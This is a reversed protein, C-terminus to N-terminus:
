LAPSRRSLGAPSERPREFCGTAAGPAPPGFVAHLADLDAAPARVEIRSDLVPWVSM